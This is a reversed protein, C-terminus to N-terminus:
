DEEESATACAGGGARESRLVPLPGMAEVGRTRVRSWWRERVLAGVVALAAVAWCTAALVRLQSSFRGPWADLLWLPLGLLAVLTILLDRWARVRERAADAILVADLRASRRGPQGSAPLTISEERV